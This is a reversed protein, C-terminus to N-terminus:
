RAGGEVAARVRDEADWLDAPDVLPDREARRMLRQALNTGIQAVARIAAREEERVIEAAIDTM